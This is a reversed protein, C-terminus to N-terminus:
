SDNVLLSQLLVDDVRLFVHVGSQAFNVLLLHGVEIRLDAVLAGCNTADGDSDAVNLRDKTHRLGIGAQMEAIVHAGVVNVESNVHQELTEEM